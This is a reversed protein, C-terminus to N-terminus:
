EYQLAQVVQLRSARRAPLFAAILVIITAAAWCAAILAANLQFETKHALLAHSLLNFVYAYAVGIATGPVLSIFGIALAQSLVVKRLQGRKLGVARLIGLERTQELVNVTLTNAVGLSAVLFVFTMLAWVLGFVQLVARDIHGRLEARSHLMLHREAAFAALNESLASAAGSKAAVAFVHVGQIQFLRAATEWEMFLAMGDITYENATGAVRLPTPGLRTELTIEDGISLNLKRALATGLVVEGRALGRRVEQIEGSRLAMAARNPPFTCAIVIARQDNARAPVWHVKDVREVGALRGLDAELNEPLQAAAIAYISDPLTGRVYFDAAAVQESWERTDRVSALLAHGVGIGVFIAISLIGVTLATRAPRRQLHLIAFRGEFGLIPSLCFAACRLLPGILLPILLVCGMIGIPMVPALFELGLWGRLLATMLVLHVGLLALGLVRPWHRLEEGPVGSQALLDELPARRSARRAPLWTAALTMGLGFFVGLLVAEASWRLEPMKVGGLFQQMVGLIGLSLLYGTAIGLVTGALGLALAERLLLGTLQTRTVGLARLIALQPRRETLNMLFTNLIVFAGAVLMAFSVGVMAQDISHLAENAREGRASPAQVILGAPLRAALAATTKAPDAGPELVIQVSTVQHPLAFLDQATALATVLVAGGNFTTVGRPELLGVVSLARIGAPTWLRAPRDLECGHARAFADELLCGAGEAETLTRGRRVITDRVAGDAAPDIGLALIPAPGSNGILAASLQIVPVAARVGPVDHLRRVVAEDFGGLGEAVVELSARDTVAEFMERYASRTARTTLSVGVITAVGLVIGVLTLLTRAPRRVSQRLAFKWLTLSTWNM